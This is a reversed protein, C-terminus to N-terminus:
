RRRTAHNTPLDICVYSCNRYAPDCGVLFCLRGRSVMVLDCNACTWTGNPPKTLASDTARIDKQGTSARWSNIDDKLQLVARRLKATSRGAAVYGLVLDTVRRTFQALAANRARQSLPRRKVGPRRTKGTNRAM